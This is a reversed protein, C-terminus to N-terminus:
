KKNSTKSIKNKIYGRLTKWNKIIHIVSLGVFIFGTIVHVAKVIGLVKNPFYEYRNEPNLYMEILIEPDIIADLIQIVVATVFLIIILFFLLISVFARVNIKRTVNM